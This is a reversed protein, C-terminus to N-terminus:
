FLVTILVWGVLNNHTFLIQCACVKGFACKLKLKELWCPRCTGATVFYEADAMKGDRYCFVQTLWSIFPFPQNQSVTKSTRNMSLQGWEKQAQPPLTHSVEHGPLL